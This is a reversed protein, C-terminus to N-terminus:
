EMTLEHFFVVTPYAPNFKFGKLNKVTVWVDERDYIFLSVADELLIRQADIFMQEARAFDTSTIENAEDILRDFEPNKYYALNFLPEDESHFTSYLFSYPSPLDPWWYMVFIDQRNEAPGKAMEWQSDWPMGRIELEINLKALESKYLEAASKEAENGATYTLLLKFGGEGYGAKELHERAKDLNYEYRPLQDSWGWLGFPVMGYSQRGYGGIVTNIVQDYPFAYALARRVDVNDLPPKQTNFMGILNQLSPEVYVTVNPNQKLAEIDTYPLEVTITAEGTEILQRRTAPEAVKRFIVTDFSNEQWGGWYDAFKELIVEEGWRSSKLQYPGTGCGKAEEIWTNDEKICKKSYIFAAYGTSAVLDLPAKYSLKFEVTQPDVVNISEVASWIYSAGAGLQVTRDISYKVDEATLADGNQFKVGQRVKFTWTLGDDSVSYSEALVPIVKKNIADYRLLQEYMNNHVHIGNSFEIAPDWNTLPESNLAYVAFKLPAQAPTAAGGGCAALLMSLLVMATILILLKKM